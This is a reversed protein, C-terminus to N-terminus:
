LNTTLEYKWNDIINDFSSLWEDCNSASNSKNYLNDLLDKFDTHKVRYNKNNLELVIKLISNYQSISFPIIKQKSGEYEYKVSTWFTNATDRHLIKM